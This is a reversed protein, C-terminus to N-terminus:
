YKHTYFARANSMFFSVGSVTAGGICSRVIRSGVSKLEGSERLGNTLDTIASILNEPEYVADRSAITEGAESIVVGRMTTM